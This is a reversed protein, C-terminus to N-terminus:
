ALKRCNILLCNARTTSPTSKLDVAHLHARARVGCSLCTRASASSERFAILHSMLSSQCILGFSFTKQADVVNVSLLFLWVFLVDCMCWLCLCVCVLCLCVFVCVFLCACLWAFLCVVLCLCCGFLCSCLRLACLCCVFV